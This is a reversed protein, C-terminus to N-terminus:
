PRRVAFTREVARGDVEAIAVLHWRGPLPLPVTGSFGRDGPVLEFEADSGGEAPRERRVSARSIALPAGARDVLEIVVHLAEARPETSLSLEWGQEAALRRTRREDNYRLGAGWADDVVVADPHTAAIAYFSLSGAIMACLLGALVWPWPEFRRQRGM